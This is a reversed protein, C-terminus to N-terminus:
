FLDMQRSPKKPKPARPSSKLLKYVGSESMGLRRAIDAQSLGQLRYQDARWRRALPVKIYEGAYANSLRTLIEAGLGEKDNSREPEHPVYFRIGGVREVIKLFDADGLMARLEAEMDRRDDQFEDDFM